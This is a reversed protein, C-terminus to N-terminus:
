SKKSYHRNVFWNRYTPTKRKELTAISVIGLVIVVGFSLVLHSNIFDRAEHPVIFCIVLIILLVIVSLWSITRKM